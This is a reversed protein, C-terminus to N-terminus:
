FNIKTNLLFFDFDNKDFDVVRCSIKFFLFSTVKLNQKQSDIKEKLLIEYIDKCNNDLGM